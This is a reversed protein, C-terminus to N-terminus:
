RGAPVAEAVFGAPVTQERVAAMVTRTTRGRIILVHIEDDYRVALLWDRRDDVLADYPLGVLNVRPNRRFAAAKAKRNDLENAQQLQDVKQQCAHLLTRAQMLAQLAPVQPRYRSTDVWDFGLSIGGEARAVWRGHEIAINTQDGPGVLMPTGPQHARQLIDWDYALVENTAM